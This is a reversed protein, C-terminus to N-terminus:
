NGSLTIDEDKKLQTIVKSELDEDDFLNVYYTIKNDADLFLGYEYLNNESENESLDPRSAWDEQM